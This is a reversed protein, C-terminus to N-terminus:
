DTAKAIKVSVDRSLRRPQGAEGEQVAYLAHVNVSVAQKSRKPLQVDFSLTRAGDPSAQPLPPWTVAAQDVQLDEGPEILLRPQGAVSSWRIGREANPRLRLHVTVVRSAKEDACHVVTKEVSVLDNEDPKWEDRAAENSTAVGGSKGDGFGRAPQRREGSCPEVALAVPTGGQATIEKEATEIWDYFAHPMATAPGYQQLRAAFVENAPALEVAKRWADVAAQFDGDRHEPRDHRICCAVGLRFWTRSDVDGKKQKLGQRYAEIAEDILPPLGVMVLANGHDRWGAVSRGDKALRRTIRTDALETRGPEPPTEPAEFEKNVFEEALKDPHLKTSRVIGHEDVAVVLPLSQVNVLNLPDHLAPWDIGKWQMFLRCRDAHQEHAVGLVALKGEAVFPKAKEFWVPMEERCKESWSAFHILLVKKGRLGSLAVVKDGELTRLVVPPHAKGPKPPYAAASLTEALCVSHVLLAATILRVHLRRVSWDM